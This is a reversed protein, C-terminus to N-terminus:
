ASGEECDAVRAEKSERLCAANMLMEPRHKGTPFAKNWTKRLSKGEMGEPELTVMKFCPRGQGGYKFPLRQEGDNETEKSKM